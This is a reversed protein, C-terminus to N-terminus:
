AEDGRLRARNAQYYTEVEQETVLKVKSTVEADLLAQASVGRKAAERALLRDGILADLKQRRLTYLQEELRQLQAGLAKDVEEYSIAEGNVDALPQSAPVTQAQGSAGLVLLLSMAVLTIWSTNGVTRGHMAGTGVQHPTVGRLGRLITGQRRCDALPGSFG